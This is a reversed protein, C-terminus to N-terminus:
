FTQFPSVLHSQMPHKTHQKSRSHDCRPRRLNRHVGPCRRRYHNIFSRPRRRVRTENPDLTIPRRHTVVVFPHLSAPLARRICPSVPRMRVVVMVLFAPHQVLSMPVVLVVVVPIPLLMIVTFPMPVMLAIPVFMMILPDAGELFRSGLHYFTTRPERHNRMAASRAPFRSPGAPLFHSTRQRLFWSLYRPRSLGRGTGGFFLSVLIPCGFLERFSSQPVTSPM